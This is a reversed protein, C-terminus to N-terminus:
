TGLEPERVFVGVGPVGEVLGRDHLLGVARVVTSRNVAYLEALASTSPLQSGPPYEGAAIRAALDDAIGRYSLRTPPMTVTSGPQSVSHAM